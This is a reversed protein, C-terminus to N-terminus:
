GALELQVAPDTAVRGDKIVVSVEKGEGVREMWVQADYQEAMASVAALSQEDLLSGDRILVIRLKPNAAFGM